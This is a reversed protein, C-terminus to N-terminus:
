GPPGLIDELALPGVHDVLARNALVWLFEDIAAGAPRAVVVRGSVARKAPGPAHHERASRGVAGLLNEFPGPGVALAPEDAAHVVRARDLAPPCRRQRRHGEDLGLGFV